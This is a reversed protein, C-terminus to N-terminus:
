SSCPVQHTNSDRCLRTFCRKNSNTGHAYRAHKYIIFGFYNHNAQMALCGRMSCIMKRGNLVIGYGGFTETHLVEFNWSKRPGNESVLMCCQICHMQTWKQSTKPKNEWLCLPLVLWLNGAFSVLFGYIRYESDPDACHLCLRDPNSDPDSTTSTYVSQKSWWPSVM